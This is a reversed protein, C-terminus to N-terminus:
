NLFARLLQLPRRRILDIREALTAARYLRRVAKSLSQRVKRRHDGKTAALSEIAALFAEADSAELRHDRFYSLELLKMASAARLRLWEKESTRARFLDLM